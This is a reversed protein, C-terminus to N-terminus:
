KKNWEALKGQIFKVIQEHEEKGTASKIHIPEGFSFYLPKKTDVPGFDKVYKGNGWFDTKLAFPIVPVNARKALKVGISNFEEPKFEVSRTSQPFIIVSRGAEIYKQGETMITKFDERPNTRSVPIGYIKAVEGFFPYDVLEKKVVLVTDKKHELVMCPLAYTEFSSMHNGIVVVPSGVKTFNDIGDVHATGGAWEASRILDFANYALENPGYLGKKALTGSNYAIRFSHFYFHWRTGLFLIRQWTKSSGPKTDYRGGPFYNVKPYPTKM